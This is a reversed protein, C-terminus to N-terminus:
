VTRCRNTYRALEIENNKQKTINTAYELHVLRGDIWEVAADRCDYWEDNLLNKQEWRYIGTPHSHEDLLRHKPCFECPGTMGKQIAKWCTKGVIDGFLERAKKNAFLIKYDEFNTALIHIDINDFVARM